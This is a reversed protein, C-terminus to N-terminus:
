DVTNKKRKSKKSHESVGLSLISSRAEGVLDLTSRDISRTPEESTPARDKSKKKSSNESFGLSSILSRGEGGSDRTSQDVSRAPGEASPTRDTRSNKSHKSREESSKRSGQAPTTISHTVERNTQSHSQNKSQMPTTFSHSQKSKAGSSQRSGQAPTTISHTLGRGTQSYKQKSSQRPTAFSHSMNSKWSAPSRQDSLSPFNSSPPVLEDPEPYRVLCVRRSIKGVVKSESASALFVSADPEQSAFSVMDYSKGSSSEFSGLCGDRRLKLSLEKGTFDDAQLQNHPWQILWLETSDTLSIEVLPDKTDEEFSPPPQYGQQSSEM